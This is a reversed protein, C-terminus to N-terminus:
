NFFHMYTCADDLWCRCDEQTSWLNPLSDPSAYAVDVAARVAEIVCTPDRPDEVRPTILLSEPCRLLSPIYEAPEPIFFSQRYYDPASHQEWLCWRCTMWRLRSQPM